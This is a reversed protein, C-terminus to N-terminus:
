AFLSLDVLRGQGTEGRRHAVLEGGGAGLPAVAPVVGGVARFRTEGIHEDPMQRLPVRAVQEIEPDERHHEM